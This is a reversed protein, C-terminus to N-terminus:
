HYEKSPNSDQQPKSQKGVDPSGMDPLLADIAKTFDAESVADGAVAPLASLVAFALVCLAAQVNKM